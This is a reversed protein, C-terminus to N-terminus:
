CPPSIDDPMEGCKKTSTPEAFTAVNAGAILILGDIM